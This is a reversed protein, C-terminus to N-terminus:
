LTDAVALRESDDYVFNIPAAKAPDEELLRLPKEGCAINLRPMRSDGAPRSISVYTLYLAVFQIAHQIGHNANRLVM